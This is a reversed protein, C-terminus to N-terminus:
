RGVKVLPLSGELEGKMAPNQKGGVARAKRSVQQEVYEYLEQLTVIGDRNLDGAGELGRALYYTFLGHGLEPLEISVESPRSATVIARGKARTLRELFLDDLNTARTKKSAFTRGGAAGSYCADIFTVVREAEIRSFITQIDDMPLASSFLDDPDADAPVLYKALGDRELGRQDVEPAGHGAFYILVVDDKGASRALFTGLAWKVNRLTPKKETKDTLLLVRDKAFGGPGTLVRYMAEADAVAYTLPPVDPSEYRGVGIVVAWRQPEPKAPAAPVAPAAAVVPPQYAVSRVVQRVQGEGDTASVVIVNAGGRLTVPVTLSISTQGARPAQEAPLVEAGNLTVSVKALGKSSAAAGVVVTAAEALRAGDDPYRLEVTLPARRAYSVSRVEQAVTGDAEAATVVLTNRGERLTLSANLAVRARPVAEEARSVETGNLTVLVRTVGKGSTVVGALAITDYEVRLQDAPSALQVALPTPPGAPPPAPRAVAPRSPPPPPAAAPPPAPAPPAPAAAAVPPEYVFTRAEQRTEGGADTASVLVVNRGERLKLVLALPVEKPAAREDQRHVEVGNVTVVVRTVGSDSTVKGRLPAEAAATRAGEGPAALAVTLPEPRELSVVVYNFGVVDPSSARVFRHAEPAYWLTISRQGRSGGLSLAYAIRFAKIAGAPLSLDEYAEVRWGVRIGRWGESRPTSWQGKAAGSAGVRLPWDLDLAPSFEVTGRGSMVRSVGLNRSLRVEQRPGAAFVYEDGEIRVLEFAGDNRIWKDGLAYTPREASPQQALAPAALVLGALALITTPVGFAKWLRM